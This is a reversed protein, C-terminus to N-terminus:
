ESLPRGAQLDALRYEVEGTDIGDPRTIHRENVPDIRVAEDGRVDLGEHDLDHLAGPRQEIRNSVCLEEAVQVDKLTLFGLKM